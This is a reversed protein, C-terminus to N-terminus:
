MCSQKICQPFFVSNVMSLFHVCPRTHLSLSWFNGGSQCVTSFSGGTVFLYSKGREQSTHLKYRKVRQTVSWGCRGAVTWRGASEPPPLSLTCPWCSGRLLIRKTPFHAIVLEDTNTEIVSFPDNPPMMLHKEMRLWNFKRRSTQEFTYIVWSLTFLKEWGVNCFTKIFCHLSAM